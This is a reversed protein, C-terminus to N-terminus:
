NTEQRKVPKIQFRSMAVVTFLTRPLISSSWSPFVLIHGCCLLGAGCVSVLFAASNMKLRPIPPHPPPPPTFFLLPSSFFPLIVRRQPQLTPECLLPSQDDLSSVSDDPSPTYTVAGGRARCCGVDCVPECSCTTVTLPGRIGM